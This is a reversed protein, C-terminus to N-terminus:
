GRGADTYWRQLWARYAPSARLQELWDRRQLYWAVTRQLGQELKVTAQWGLGQLAGTSDLEYRRDHGPRDPVQRLLSLHPAGDPLAHDLAVCLLRVVERNEVTHGAGLHWTNGAPAGMAAAIGLAHDRVYLWERLQTGDGYLPLTEGHLARAIFLPLLKEPYQRPGYTNAGHSVSVQLGFSAAWAQVLHDAGAKTAAYPNRPNYATGPQIPPQEPTLSGYVEDTSVQHFRTVGRARCAELLVATGRLNSDVFDLPRVLSRDVHSEAALHAVVHVGELAQRVASLDRVDAHIFRLGQAQEPLHERRGAYTLADLAVVEVGQELLVRVLSSGIFGAAGTVLARKM